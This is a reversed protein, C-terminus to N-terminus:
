TMVGIFSHRTNNAGRRFGTEVEDRLIKIHEPASISIKVQQISKSFGERTNPYPYVTVEHDLRLPHGFEVEKISLFGRQITT